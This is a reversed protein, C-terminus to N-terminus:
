VLTHTHTHRHTHTDTHRQTHTHKSSKHVDAFSGTGLISQLHIDSSNIALVHERAEDRMARLVEEVMKVREKMEQLERVDVNGGSLSFSLFRSLSLSLSLSHTNVNKHAGEDRAIRM